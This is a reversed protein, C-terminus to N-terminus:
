KRFRKSKKKRPELDLPNMTFKPRLNAIAHQGVHQDAETASADLYTTLQLQGLLADIYEEMRRQVEQPDKLGVLSRANESPFRSLASQIASLLQGLSVELDAAVLLTGEAIQIKRELGTCILQERRKKWDALSVPEGNTPTEDVAGRQKLNHAIIWVRWAEVDKRGDPRCRPYDQLEPDKRWTQLSRRDVQLLDALEVWNAAFTPCNETM